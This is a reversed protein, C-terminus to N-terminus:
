FINKKGFNVKASYLRLRYQILKQQLENGNFYGGFSFDTNLYFLKPFAAAYSLRFNNYFRMGYKEDKDAGFVFNFNVGLPFYESGGNLYVNDDQLYNWTAYGVSALYYERNLFRISKDKSISFPRYDYHKRFYRAAM